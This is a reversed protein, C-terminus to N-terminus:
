VLNPITPHMVHGQIQLSPLRPLSSARSIKAGISGITPRAEVEHLAEFWSQHASVTPCPFESAYPIPSPPGGEYELDM